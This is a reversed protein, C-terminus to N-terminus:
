FIYIHACVCINIYVYIDSAKLPDFYEVKGNYLVDFNCGTGISPTQGWALAELSGRLGDTQGMKAAKILSDSPNQIQNVSKHFFM